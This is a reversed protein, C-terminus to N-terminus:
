KRRQLARPAATTPPRIASSQSTFMPKESGTVVQQGQSNTVTGDQPWPQVAGAGVGGAQPMFMQGRPDLYNRHRSYIDRYRQGLAENYGSLDASLNGAFDFGTFPNTVNNLQYGRSQFYNGWGMQLGSMQRSLAALRPDGPRLGAAQMQGFQMQLQSLSQNYRSFNNIDMLSQAVYPNQRLNSQNLQSMLLNALGPNKGTQILNQLEPQIHQDYYEAAREPDMGSLRRVRCTMISAPTKNRTGSDNVLCEHMRREQEAAERADALLGKAQDQILRNVIQDLSRIQDVRYTKTIGGRGVSGGSCQDCQTELDLDVIVQPQKKKAPANNAGRPQTRDIIEVEEVRVRVNGTIPKGNTRQTVQCSATDSLELQQSLGCNEPRSSLLDLSNIKDLQGRLGPFSSLTFAVVALLVWLKQSKM